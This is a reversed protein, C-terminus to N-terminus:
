RVVTFVRTSRQQGSRIVFFYAGPTLRSADYEMMYLGPTHLTNVLTDVHRGLCDFVSLMVDATRNLRYQITTVSQFPQPFNPMLDIVSPVSFAPCEPADSIINTDIISQVHSKAVFIEQQNFLDGQWAFWVGDTNDALLALNARNTDDFAGSPDLTQTLYFTTDRIGKFSIIDHDIWGAVAPPNKSMTTPFISINSLRRVIQMTRGDLIDLSSVAPSSKNNYLYFLYMFQSIDAGATPMTAHHASYGNVKGSSVTSHFGSKFWSPFGHSQTEGTTLFYPLGASTKFVCVPYKVISVLPSADAYVERIFSRGDYLTLWFPEYAAFTNQYDIWVVHSDIAALTVYLTMGSYGPDPLSSLEVFENGEINKYLTLTTPSYTVVWLAGTTDSDVDFGVLGGEYTRPLSKAPSWTGSDFVRFLIQSGGPIGNSNGIWFCYLRESTGMVLRPSIDPVSNETLRYVQAAVMIPILLAPLVCRVLKM